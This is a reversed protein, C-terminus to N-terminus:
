YTIVMISLMEEKIFGDNGDLNDFNIVDENIIVDNVMNNEFKDTFHFLRHKM